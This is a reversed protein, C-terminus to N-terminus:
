MPGGRPPGGAPPGGVPPGPIKPPGGDYNTNENDAHCNNGDGTEDTPISTTKVGDPGKMGDDRGVIICKVVQKNVNINDGDRGSKDERTYKEYKKQYEKHAFASHNSGLAAVTGAALLTAAIAAIAILVTTTTTHNM